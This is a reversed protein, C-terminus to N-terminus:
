VKAKSGSKRKKGKKFSFKIMQNIGALRAISKIHRNFEANTLPQVNKKLHNELLTRAEALLPIVVWHNSKQQKKHLM